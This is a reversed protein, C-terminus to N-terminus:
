LSNILNEVTKLKDAAEQKTDKNDFATKRSIQYLMDILIDKDKKTIKKKGLLEKLEAEDEKSIECNIYIRNLVPIKEVLDEKAETKDIFETFIEDGRMKQFINIDALVDKKVYEQIRSIGETYYVESVQSGDIDDKPSPIGFHYCVEELSSNYYHTGKFMEMLCLTKDLNWPKKGNTIFPDKLLETMNYYRWGCNILVPLDFGLINFGSVYTFNNAISCFEKIIEDEEGLLAKIHVQGDRIMGVGISVVKQYGMKLAARKRYEEQLEDDTLVEDTDRNRTKKQFLDYELSDIELEKNRRVVEIDFFLVDTPNIKQFDKTM